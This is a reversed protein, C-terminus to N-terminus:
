GRNGARREAREPNVIEAYGSQPAKVESTAEFVATMSPELTEESLGSFNVSFSPRANPQRV